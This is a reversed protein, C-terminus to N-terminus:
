EYIFYNIEYYFKSKQSATIKVWKYRSRSHRGTTLPLRRFSDKPECVISIGMVPISMEGCEM